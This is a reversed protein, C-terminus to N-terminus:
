PSYVPLKDSSLSRRHVNVSIQYPGESTGNRLVKIRYKGANHTVFPIFSNTSSGFGIYSAYVKWGGGKDKLIALGKDGYDNGGQAVTRARLEVMPQFIQSSSNAKFGTVSVTVRRNEELDIDFWDETNSSSLYGSHRFIYNRQTNNEMVDWLCDDILPNSADDCIVIPSADSSYYADQALSTYPKIKYAGPTGSTRRVKVFYWGQDLHNPWADSFTTSGYSDCVASTTNAAYPKDTDVVWRGYSIRASKYISLELTQGAQETCFYMSLISTWVNANNPVYVRFFDVDSESDIIGEIEVQNDLPIAHSDADWDAYDDGVMEFTLYYRGSNGNVDHVNIYYYNMAYNTWNVCPNLTGGGPCDNNWAKLNFDDDYIALALDEGDRTYAKIEYAEGYAGFFAVWDNDALVDRNKITLYYTPTAAGIKM